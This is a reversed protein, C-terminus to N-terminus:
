KVREFHIIMKKMNFTRDGLEIISKRCNSSLRLRLKKDIILTTINVLFNYFDNNSVLGNLNHKLYDEMGSLEANTGVVPCGTLMAEQPM